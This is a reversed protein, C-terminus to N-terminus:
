SGSIFVQRGVHDPRLTRRCADAQSGHQAAHDQWWGNGMLHLQNVGMRIMIWLQRAEPRM